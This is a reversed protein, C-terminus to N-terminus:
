RRNSRRKQRVKVTENNLYVCNNLIDENRCVEQKSVSLGMKDFIFKKLDKVTCEEVELIKNKSVISSDFLVRVKNNFEQEVIHPVLITSLIKFKNFNKLQKRYKFFDYFIGNKLHFLSREYNNKISSYNRSSILSEESFINDIISNKTDEDDSYLVTYSM